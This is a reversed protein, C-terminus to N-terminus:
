DERWVLSFGLGLPARPDLAKLHKEMNGVRKAADDSANRMLRLFDASQRPLRYADEELRRQTLTAMRHLLEGHRGESGLGSYEVALEALEGGLEDLRQS